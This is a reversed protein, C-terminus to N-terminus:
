KRKIIKYLLIIEILNVMMATGGYSIFPLTLGTNPLIKTNVGINIFAQIMILSILGVGLVRPYDDRVKPLHKLFYFALYFYLGILVMNGLFGIEESFAAFVFDSQAEPIFGFKQLGKGYGKGALGGGGIAMLAQENQWGIDRSQPDVNSSIFYTFRRQIYTFRDSFMSAMGGALAGGLIGVIFIGFVKKFKLGAYWAMVLGTLGLILVTGLDPILLFMFFTIANLVVFSIVFEKKDVFNRKRLLRNSLFIIYGLKFFEAPQISPLGPINIWGRAGNLVMGIGPIFVALQLLLIVIAIINVNRNNQFFKIPVRYVVLAMIVAIGINRLQRLFYFYNSADGSMLGKAILSLTLAFSEYISVSYIALVGFFVLLMGVVLIPM